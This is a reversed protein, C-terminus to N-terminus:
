SVADSLGLRLQTLDGVIPFTRNAASDWRQRLQEVMPLERELILYYIHSDQRQLLKEVLRRGIFGSAGTIFYNM